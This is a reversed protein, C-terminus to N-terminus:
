THSSGKTVRIRLYHLHAPRITQVAMQALYHAAAQGVAWVQLQACNREAADAQETM